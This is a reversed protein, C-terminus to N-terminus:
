FPRDNKKTKKTVINIYREEPMAIAPTIWCIDKIVEVTVIDKKDALLKDSDKVLMNDICVNLKRDQEPIKFQNLLGELQLLEANKKLKIVIVGHKAKDGYRSVTNSDSLIDISVINDPDLMLHKRDTKFSDVIILPEPDAPTVMETRSRQCIATEALLCLLLVLFFPKRSHNMCDAKFLKSSEQVSLCDRFILIGKKIEV